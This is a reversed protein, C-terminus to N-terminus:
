FDDGVEPRFAGHCNSCSNNLNTWGKKAAALDGKASAKAIEQSATLYQDTFGTWKEFPKKQQEAPEKFERTQKGLKTLQEASAAVEKQAKKFKPAASTADRIKKSEADIKKMIKALPSNKDGAISVSAALSAVCSAVVALVVWRRLM